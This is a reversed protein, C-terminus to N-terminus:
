IFEELAALYFTIKADSNASYSKKEGFHLSEFSRLTRAALYGANLFIGHCCSTIKNKSFSSFFKNSCLTSKVMAPPITM